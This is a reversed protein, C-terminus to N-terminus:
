ASRVDGIASATDVLNLISGLIRLAMSNGVAPKEEEDALIELDGIFEGVCHEIIQEDAEV